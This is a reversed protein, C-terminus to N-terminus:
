KNATESWNNVFYLNIFTFLVIWVICLALSIWIVSQFAINSTGLQNIGGLRLINATIFNFPIFLVYTVVFALIASALKQKKFPSVNTIWNILFDITTIVNLVLIGVLGIILLILLKYGLHDTNILNSIMMKDYINPRIFYSLGYIGIEACSLYVLAAISTWLNSFYLQNDTIPVMRYRNSFYIKENYHSVMVFGALTFGFVGGTYSLIEQNHILLKFIMSGLNLIVHFALLYSILKFKNKFLTKSIGGMM